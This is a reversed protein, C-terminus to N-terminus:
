RWAWEVSEISSGGVLTMIIIRLLKGGEGGGEWFAVGCSFVAFRLGVCVHVHVHVHVCSTGNGSLSSSVSSLLLSRTIRDLEKGDSGSGSGGSAGGVATTGGAADSLSPSGSETTNSSSPVIFLFAHVISSMDTLELLEFTCTCTYSEEGGSEGPTSGPNGPPLNVAQTRM